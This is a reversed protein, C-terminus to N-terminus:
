PAALVIQRPALEPQGVLATVAAGDVTDHRIEAGFHGLLIEIPCLSRAPEIVRTAGPTNLAALLIAAKVDPGAATLRHDQPVPHRAGALGLPLGHDDRVLFRAGQRQLPEILHGLSPGADGALFCTVPHTAVLGLILPLVAAGGQLDVVGAPEALGGIGVGRVRWDSGDQSVDVGFARLARAAAQLAPGDGAGTVVSEGVALAAVVLAAPAVAPDDPLAPKGASATSHHSRPSVTGM